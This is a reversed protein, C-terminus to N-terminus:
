VVVLYKAISTSVGGLLRAVSYSVALLISIYILPMITLEVFTYTAFFILSEPSFVDIELAKLIFPEVLVDPHPTSRYELAIDIAYVGSTFTYKFATYNIGYWAFKVLGSERVETNNVLVKLEDSSEVYIGIYTDSKVDVVLKVRGAERYYDLITVYSGIEVVRITDLALLDPLQLTYNYSASSAVPLTFKYKIGAIEVVAEHEECPFGGRSKDVVLFGRADFVYRYLFEEGRYGEIVALGLPRGKADKLSLTASCVPENLGYSAITGSTITSIFQPMLPVGVSFVITLAIIMAGAGRSLRFPISILLIGLAILFGAAVRLVAAVISVALLTTLSTTVLNVIPTVIGSVVPGLGIKSSVVSIAKLVSLILTLLSTRDAVWQAFGAWDTGLVSGLYDIISVLTRYSFVLVASFVGDVLLMRGLRKVTYIPLPLARLLVGLCYSLVSLYFALSLIDV